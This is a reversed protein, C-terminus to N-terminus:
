DACGAGLHHCGSPCWSRPDAPRRGCRSDYAHPQMRLLADVRSGLPWGPHSAQMTCEDLLPGHQPQTPTATSTCLVPIRLMSDPTDRGTAHQWPKCSYRSLACPPSGAGRGVESVGFGGGRRGLLDLVDPGEHLDALLVAVQREADGTLPGRCAGRRASVIEASRVTAAADAPARNAASPDERACQTPLRSWVAALTAPSTAPVPWEHKEGRATLM